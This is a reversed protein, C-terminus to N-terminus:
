KCTHFIFNGHWSNFMNIKPTIFFWLQHGKNSCKFPLFSIIVVFVWSFQQITVSCFSKEDLRILNVFSCLRFLITISKNHSDIVSSPALSFSKSALLYSVRQLFNVPAAVTFISISPKLLPEWAFEAALLRCQLPRAVYSPEM